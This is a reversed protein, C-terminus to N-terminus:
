KVPEGLAKKMLEFGVPDHKELEARTSPAFDNMGFYAESLEAFYEAPSTAAYAKKKERGRYEVSDYIKRATSQM